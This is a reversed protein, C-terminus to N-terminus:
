LTSVNTVSDWISRSQDRSNLGGLKFNLREIMIWYFLRCLLNHKKWSAIFRVRLRLGGLVQGGDLNHLQLIDESCSRGWWPNVPLSWCSCTFSMEIYYMIGNDLRQWRDKKTLTEWIFRSRIKDRRWRRTGSTKISKSQNSTRRHVLPKHPNMFEHIKSFQSSKHHVVRFLDKWTQIWSGHYLVFGSEYRLPVSRVKKSNKPNTVMIRYSDM